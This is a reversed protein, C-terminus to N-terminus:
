NVSLLGALGTGSTTRQFLVHHPVMGNEDATGKRVDWM